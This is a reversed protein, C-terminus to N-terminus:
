IRGANILVAGLSDRPTMFTPNIEIARRYHAIAEGTRGGQALAGALDNHAKVNNPRLRAATEYNRIAEEVRGARLCAHGLNYYGRANDPRKTVVDTWITLETQYDRNRRVTLVIFVVAVVAFAVRSCRGLWAHLGLVLWVIVAALPLYM